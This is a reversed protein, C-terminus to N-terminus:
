RILGELTRFLIEPEVPKSLHANLGAQLSREVDEDFANATLAIVPITKADERDTARIMRTAELGDMEPMRMDMLIADYYGPGHERFMEVAAKGNEAHDASMKRMSLLMMIIEANVAVDEALLIRRGELDAPRSEAKRNKNKVVERFRETVTQASLPREIFADAGAERVDQEKMENKSALLIVPTSDGLTRRIVPVTGAMKGGALVLDYPERRASRVKAMQIGEEATRASECGIGLEGLVLNDHECADADEDILLVSMEHPCAGSEDEGDRRDSELLTVTVTFVTGKGKESQVEINGNMLETISRTIPMGLGTSGYRGTFSSDEQSFAEFIQPLYEESMGIGTDSIVFRLTSRGSVRATEEVTFTVTGGEPTFKVANGLINLMVQRLKMDDGIYYDDVKGIVRYEYHLGKERCQGSIMTNVQELAGAFSFEENKLVMRGSEIRSMDLIDNIIGLLHHASTNIKELHDRTKASLSPDNLAINGLGIIANMPTRIEHSMNSLFATKARNAQEASALAENLAQEQEMSQRMERDIVTLGLGIAHVRGDSRDAIHRVGAARIMEYYERGARNALYRYALIPEKALGERITDPDIFRLFGERYDEAVCHGAYWGFRESFSFHIGAPTQQTDEADARYCVADDRDLDVYYVTRYDSAMATIMQDQMSRRKEEELLKEQLTLRQELEEQRIRNVAEAREKELALTESRRNQAIVFLFMAILSFATLLSQAISKALIGKSIPGIQESIVSERILYTLLWDTGEVPVYSLTEPIGNYTFCVEGATGTEFDSLLKEYSYGSDYVANEMARLLNDEVALGGLVTNSLAIGTNTYINCFTAGEGQPRMSVGRLMEEMGIEMFCVTLTEGGFPINVPLAIIVKKDPSETHIVSIDPGSLGRPDFRYDGADTEIGSATYIAGDPDAFAFREIKFLEKMRAQYAMRSADNVLDEERMLSLATRLDEIRDKLNEAVVQERRGALEDLYLLSVSRVAKDTDKAASQSMYVSGFVLICLVAFGGAIWATVTNRHKSEM